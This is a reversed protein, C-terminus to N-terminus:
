KDEETKEEIEEDFEVTTYEELLDAQEYYKMAIRGEHAESAGEAASEFLEDVIKNIKEYLFNDTYLIFLRLYTLPRQFM